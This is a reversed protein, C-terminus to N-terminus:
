LQGCGQWQSAPFRSLSRRGAKDGKELFVSVAQAVDEDCAREDERECEARVLQEAVQCCPVFKETSQPCFLNGENDVGVRAFDEFVESNGHGSYVELLKQYRQDHRDMQLKFDAQAPNTAEWALGHPIVLSDFGWEDLKRYLVDPTLAVERCDSPLQDAAVDDPCIPVQRTEHTLANFGSMAEVGGTLSLVSKMVTPIQELGYRETSAIPRTPVEGPGWRRFVVNKHGYHEEPTDGRHSWEWGPFAVVDPNDPDGARANCERVANLTDQWVRPSLGEAHDNISWFDLASCYRAFDCADAPTVVGINKILSSNFLNADLSYGTHVHLDGFLIQPESTVPQGSPRPGKTVEASTWLEGNWGAGLGYLVLLLSVGLGLLWYKM